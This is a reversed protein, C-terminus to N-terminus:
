GKTKRRKAQKNKGKSETKVGIMTEIKSKFRFIARANKNGLGIAIYGQHPYIYMMAGIGPGGGNHGTSGKVDDKDMGSFGYGYYRDVKEGRRIMQVQRSTILEFMKKSILKNATLGKAFRLLDNVTSYGGGAPMGRVSSMYYNTKLTGEPQDATATDADIKVYGLARNEVLTDRAYSDTSNMNLPAFIHKKVYDHYNEGSVKEIVMGLLHFGTNSYQYSTRPKFDFAINSVIPLYDNVSRLETFKNSFDENWYSGLGSTHTLLQRITVSESIEKNPFNPLHLSLKDNFNLLGSEVLQAIAVSTFMKNMSGINLKTDLNMELKDAINRYGIAQSFIAEGDKALLLTGSFGQETKLKESYQNLETLMEKSTLTSAAITCSYALCVVLLASKCHATLKNQPNTISSWNKM